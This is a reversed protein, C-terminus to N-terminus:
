KGDEGNGVKPMKIGMSWLVPDSTDITVATSGEAWTNSTSIMSSFSLSEHDLNWKLGTTTISKCPQGLPITGCWDGELGSDVRITHKGPQLLINISDDIILFVNKDTMEAALYLTHFNAFTHDMRSEMVGGLVVIVDYEANPKSTLYKLGKTFDTHDQDPTHIIEVGKDKFFELVEKRASDFDGTISDPLFEQNQQILSYLHNASGDVAIKVAANRWLVDLKKELVELPCNLILLAIKEKINASSLSKLPEMM